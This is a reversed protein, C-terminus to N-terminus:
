KLLTMKKSSVFTSGNEGVATLKFLYVGSAMQSANFQYSHSGADVSGQALTVVKQGILNYVELSVDSKVPVSFNITTSPNFPNPYNQQLAFEKVVSGVNVISSYTFTGDFDVQKLRYAYSVNQDVSVDTYSYDKAETSTGQGAVFAITTFNSNSVKRQIEFGNNNIETATSWDLRVGTGVMNATFSTLEVPLIEGFKLTKFDSGWESGWWQKYFNGNAGWPPTGASYNDPDFIVVSVKLGAAPLEPYGLSSLDIFAEATYGNDVDTSDYITGSVVGIGGYSGAPIPAAGGSEAGFTTSNIVYLKLESNQNIPNKLIMFMGDGEWDFKCVQKDNSKLAVYLNTGSYLFKVYTTSADSYPPKVVAGSTPAISGATPVGDKQFMIQPVNASWEPENLLGDVTIPGAAGKVIIESPDYPSAGTVFNLTRFESGWESGWWQKYFNGNAGWPPVGTSYNDPDFIVASIQLSSPITPYGLSSLDIFAEATYGNDVDSSDYITGSVVGIGGYSGAPIPAAGGTEVGFTTSNIVYLKLESNQNIPNKLIMFLGDGEWDFKCVQKDDSKLSIYLNTGSYLFKLYTTSSDKYPPKVIAGTTPTNSIGSPTGGAKFMIQPAAASWSAENLIGDVTIAGSAEYVSISAPDQVAQSYTEASAFLLLFTLVTAFTYFFKQM